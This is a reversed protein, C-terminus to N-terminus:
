AETAAGLWEHIMEVAKLPLLVYDYVLLDRVSLCDARLTKVNPLNRASLEVTTEEANLLVLASSGVSLRELLGKMEKTKHSPLALSELVLIQEESVKVSLASCLALRRMKRNMKQAYSRPQPGFVNGGGKWQPARISGQRARGTGKQRWPKRGGGRVEGRKKTKHTGLHANAMQRVAAQHMVAMNPAIGFIDDRLDVEGVTEGALNRVPLQM